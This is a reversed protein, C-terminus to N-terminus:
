LEGALLYVELGRTTYCLQYVKGTPSLLTSFRGLIEKTTPVGALAGVRSVGGSPGTLAVSDLSEFLLSGDSLAGVLAGRAGPLSFSGVAGGAADRIHMTYEALPGPEAGQLLRQEYFQGDWGIMGPIARSRVEALRDDAAMSLLTDLDYSEQDQRLYVTVRNGPGAGLVCSGASNSRVKLASKPTM